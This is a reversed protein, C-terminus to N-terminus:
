CPGIVVGGCVPIVQGTVYDSLDTALFEIVNACDEVTGLRKLAILSTIEDIGKKQFQENLRGTQIHGPAICNVQINDSGLEQALNRTFAVIGAKAISYHTYAGKNKAILGAISSVTIIKGTKEQKMYPITAKCTNITGFLNRDITHHTQEINLSSALGDVLNGDGGGANCVVIDIRKFEGYIEDAMEKCSTEDTVDLEFSLSRVGRNKIEEATNEGSMREREFEYVQFSKMNIDAVAVNAGLEALRLAYARGLGRAAGTVLAVKGDLSKNSISM